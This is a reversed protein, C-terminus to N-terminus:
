KVPVFKQKKENWEVLTSLRDLNLYVVKYEGFNLEWQIEGIDRIFEWDYKKYLPLFINYYDEVYGEEECYKKVAKLDKQNQERLMRSIFDNLM